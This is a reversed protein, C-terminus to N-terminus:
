RTLWTIAVLNHLFHILMCPYLSNTNRRVYGLLFGVLMLYPFSIISLHMAAFLVGALIIARIPVIAVELWYQLLGRFAIEETIAPLVCVLFVLAPYSLGFKDFSLSKMDEGLLKLVLTHYGWNLALCPALLGLGIWAAPKNFGINRFQVALSRWHLGAFISTTVFLILSGVLFSVSRDDRGGLFLSVIIALVLAGAFSFFLTWVQPALKNIRAENSLTVPRVASVVANHSQFPTACRLCFYYFPNLPAGCYACFQVPGTEYVRQTYAASAQAAPGKEAGYWLPRGPAPNAGANPDEPPPMTM